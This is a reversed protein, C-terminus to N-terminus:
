RMQKWSATKCHEQRYFISCVTPRPSAGATVFAQTLLSPESQCLLTVFLVTGASVCNPLLTFVVFWQQGNSPTCKVAFELYERLSSRCTIKAQCFLKTHYLLLLFFPIVYSEATQSGWSNKLKWVKKNSSFRWQASHRNESKKVIITIVFNRIHLTVRM